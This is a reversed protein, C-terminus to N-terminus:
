SESSSSDARGASKEVAEVFAEAHEITKRVRDEALPARIEYDSQQRLRFAEGLWRGLEKPLKGTTLFHRGFLNRLAAHTRPISLDLRYLLARVAHFMSYYARDVASRLSGEELLLKADRLMERALQLSEASYDRSPETM